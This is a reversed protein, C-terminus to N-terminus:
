VHARGIELRHCCRDDLVAYNGGATRWALLPTGLVTRALFGDAPIEHEWGIVYWCNRLWMRDERTQASESQLPWLVLMTPAPAM